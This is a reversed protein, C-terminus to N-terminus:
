PPATAAGTKESTTVFLRRRIPTCGSAGMSEKTAKPALLPTDWHHQCINEGPQIAMGFGARDQLQIGSPHLSAINKKGAFPYVAIAHPMYGIGNCVASDRYDGMALGLGLIECARRYQDRRRQ